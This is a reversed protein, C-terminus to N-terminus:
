VKEIKVNDKRMHYLLQTKMRYEPDDPNQKCVRVFEVGDIWKPEWTSVTYYTDNNSLSIVRLTESKKKVPKM